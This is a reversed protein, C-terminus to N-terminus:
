PGQSPIMSGWMASRVMFGALIATFSAVTMVTVDRHAVHIESELEELGTADIHRGGVWAQDEDVASTEGAAVSEVASEDLDTFVHGLPAPDTDGDVIAKGTVGRHDSRLEDRNFGEGLRGTQGAVGGRHRSGGFVGPGGIM